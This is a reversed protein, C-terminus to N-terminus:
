RRYEKGCGEELNSVGLIGGLANFCTCVYKGVDTKPTAKSLM